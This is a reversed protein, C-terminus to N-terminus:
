GMSEKNALTKDSKEDDPKEPRGAEGAESSNQNQASDTKNKRGKLDEMNMTSSMLPPIMLESLHMVENEFYVTNLISSQSHGM